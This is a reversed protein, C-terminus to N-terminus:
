IKESSYLERFYNRSKLPDLFLTRNGYDWDAPCVQGPYQKVYQISKLVRLIENLSRGCLINNVSYYQILGDKDIIFLGPITIGDNTILKYDKTIQQTLDSILPYDLDELGGDQRCRFLSYLHSFPNELSVALIQTSLSRFEPLRNNLAILETLSVATFNSPYFILVVYKKGRYDSLRIRGFKKKYVAIAAFNPAPKGIQPCTIM